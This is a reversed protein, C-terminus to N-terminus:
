MPSNKRSGRHVGRLERGSLGGSTSVFGGPGPPNMMPGEAPWPHLGMIRDKGMARGEGSRGHSVIQIQLSQGQGKGPHGIDWHTHMYVEHSRLSTGLHLYTAAERTGIITVWWGPVSKIESHNRWRVMSNQWITRLGNWGEEKRSCKWLM